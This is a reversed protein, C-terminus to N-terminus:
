AITPTSTPPTWRCCSRARARPTSTSTPADTTSPTPSGIHVDADAARAVAALRTGPLDGTLHRVLGGVLHGYTNTHYTHRSGPPWWPETAALADCMRDFDALDDDVLHERIAPVGARHCLAQRVTVSGKGHAAFNPWCRAVPEDLGIAGEEVLQLLVLAVFPKGVSYTNVLTDSRWRRTRARDAWGGWLDVVTESAVMVTVAAGLEGHHTFNAAFADRVPAFDEDCHGEIM